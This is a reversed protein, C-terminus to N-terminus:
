KRGTISSIDLKPPNVLRGNFMVAKGNKLDWTCRRTWYQQSRRTHGARRPKPESFKEIFTEVDKEHCARAIVQGFKRPKHALKEVWGKPEKATNM